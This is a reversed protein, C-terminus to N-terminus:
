SSGAAFPFYHSEGDYNQRNQDGRGERRLRRFQGIQIENPLPVTDNRVLSRGLRWGQNVGQGYIAAQATGAGHRFPTFKIGDRGHPAVAIEICQAQPIGPEREPEGSAEELSALWEGDLSPHPKVASPFRALLDTVVAAHYQGAPRVKELM